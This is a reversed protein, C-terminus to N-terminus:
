TAQAILQAVTVAALIVVIQVNMEEALVTMARETKITDGNWLNIHRWAEGDGGGGVDNLADARIACSDNFM